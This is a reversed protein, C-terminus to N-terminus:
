NAHVQNLETHYQRNLELRQTETEECLDAGPQAYTGASFFVNNM